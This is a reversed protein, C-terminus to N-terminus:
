PQFSTSLEAVGESETGRSGGSQMGVDESSQTQVPAEAVKADPRQQDQKSTVM